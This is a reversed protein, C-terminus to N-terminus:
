NKAELRKRFASVCAATRYEPAVIIKNANKSEFAEETHGKVYVDMVIFSVNGLIDMGYKHSFVVVLDAVERQNVTTFRGWKVFQENAAELLHRDGTENVLFITQASLAEPALQAKPKAMAPICFVATLLLAPALRNEFRGMGCLSM